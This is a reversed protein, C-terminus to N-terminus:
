RKWQWEDRVTSGDLAGENTGGYTISTSKTVESGEPVATVQLQAPNTM